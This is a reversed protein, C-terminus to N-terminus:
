SLKRTFVDWVRNTDGPVLNPANSSFTILHGGATLDPSDSSSDAPTGDPTTSILSTRDSWADRLYVGNQFPSEAPLLNTATSVFAVFRGNASLAAGQSSYDAQKGASSVSIREIRGTWRDKLFVDSNGNTDGPVLNSATSTLTVFRGDASIEAQTSSENAQTSGTNSVLDIRGTWRDKVFIDGASNTDGPTLDAAYSVFTVWRGDASISPNGTHYSSVQAGDATLSV